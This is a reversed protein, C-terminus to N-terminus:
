HYLKVHAPDKKMWPLFDKRAIHLLAEYMYKHIRVARNYQRGEMVGLSSGGALVQAEILIDKLGGDQFCKGIISLLNCITHIFHEWEWFLIM